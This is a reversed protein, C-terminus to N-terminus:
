GASEAKLYVQGNEFEEAELLDEFIRQSSTLKEM